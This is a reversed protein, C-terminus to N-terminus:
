HLVSKQNSHDSQHTDPFPGLSVRRGRRWSKRASRSQDLSLSERCSRDAEDCQSRRDSGVGTQSVTREEDSLGPQVRGIGVHGKSIVALSLWGIRSVQQALIADARERSLTLTGEILGNLDSKLARGKSDKLEFQLQIPDRDFTLNVAERSESDALFDAIRACFNQIERPSTHDIGAVLNKAATEAVSRRQRIWLRMPIIWDTDKQYGYTSYITVVKDAATTECCEAPWSMCCVLICLVRNRLM